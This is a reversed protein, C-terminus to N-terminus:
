EPDQLLPKMEVFPCLKFFYYFSKKNRELVAMAKKKQRKTRLSFLFIEIKM